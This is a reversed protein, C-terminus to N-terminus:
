FDKIPIIPEGPISNRWNRGHWGYFHERFTVPYIIEGKDALHPYKAVVIVIIGQLQNVM